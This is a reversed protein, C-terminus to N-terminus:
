GAADSSTVTAQQSAIPRGGSSLQLRYTGPRLKTGDQRRYGFWVVGDGAKITQQNRGAEQGNIYWVAELNGSPRGRYTFCGLLQSIDRFSTAVGTPRGNEVSRCLVLSDGVPPQPTSTTPATSTASTPQGITFQKSGLRQPGATIAVTYTGAQFGGAATTNISFAVWGTGGVTRQSRRLEQGNRKWVCEATTNQPLNAYTAFCWVESASTFSDAANQPQGNVVKRCVVLTGPPGPQPTAVPKPPQSIVNTTGTKWTVSDGEMTGVLKPAIAQGGAMIADMKGGPLLSATATSGRTTPVADFSTLGAKTASEARIIDLGAQGKGTGTITVAYQLNSPLVYIEVEGQSRIEAGPIENVQRGNLVGVRRGQADTFLADAPCHLMAMLKNAKDLWSIMEALKAKLTPIVANAEALSIQRVVAKASINNLGPYLPTMDSSAGWGGTTPNISFASSPAQTYWQGKPPLNPDYVYIASTRGEVEVLKYALLAHGWWEKVAQMQPQGNVMVQKQVDECGLIEIMVPRRDNKLANRVTNLCNLSDYDRTHFPDDSLVAEVLPLLQARQYINVNASAADQSMDCTRGGGPRLAADMFYLGATAALGFCHGGASADVSTRLYDMLRTYTQPFMLRTLLTSAQPDTYLQGIVTALLGEVMEQGERGKLRYNDFSYSDEVWRFATTANHAYYISCKLDCQNDVPDMDDQGPRSVVVRLTANEINKGGLDWYFQALQSGGAAIDPVRVPRSIPQMEADGQRALLLRAEVGTAAITNSRNDVQVIVYQQDAAPERERRRHATWWRLLVKGSEVHLDPRDPGAVKDLWLRALDATLKQQHNDADDSAAYYLKSDIPQRNGKVEGVTSTDIRLLLNRYRVFAGGSGAAGRGNRLRPDNLCNEDEATFASIETLYHTRVAAKAVAENQYIAVTMQWEMAWRMPTPPNTKATNAYPQALKVNQVAYMFFATQETINGHGDDLHVGHGAAQVEPDTAYAFPPKIDKALLVYKAPDIQTIWEPPGGPQAFGPAAVVSLILLAVAILSALYRCVWCGKRGTLGAAALRIGLLVLASQTQVV